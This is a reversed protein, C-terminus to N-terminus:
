SFILKGSVDDSGHCCLVDKDNRDYGCALMTMVVFSVKCM